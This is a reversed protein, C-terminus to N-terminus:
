VGCCRTHDGAEERVPEPDNPFPHTYEDGLDAFAHGMEHTLIDNARAHVSTVAGRRDGWGGYEGDNVVIVILDYEPLVLDLLDRAKGFGNAADPDFDNPPITLGHPLGWSGFSSNFYTDRFIGRTPHDSGSEASAM